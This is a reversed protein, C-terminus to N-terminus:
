SSITQWSYLSMQGQLWSNIIRAYNTSDHAIVAKIQAESILGAQIQNQYSAIAKTVQTTYTAASQDIQSPNNLALTYINRHEKKPYQSLVGATAAAIAAAPESSQTQALHALFDALDSLM